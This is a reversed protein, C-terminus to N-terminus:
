VHRRLAHPSISPTSRLTTMEVAALLHDDDVSIPGLGPQLRNLSAEDGLAAHVRAGRSSSASSSCRVDACRVLRRKRENVNAAAPPPRGACRGRRSTLEWTGIPALPELDTSMGRTSIPPGPRLRYPRALSSKLTRLGTATIIIPVM